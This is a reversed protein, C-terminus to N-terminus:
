HLSRALATGSPQEKHPSSEKVRNSSPEWQRAYCVYTSINLRVTPVLIQLPSTKIDVDVALVGMQYGVGGDGVCM